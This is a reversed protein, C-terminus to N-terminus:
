FRWASHSFRPSSWCGATPRFSCGPLAPGWRARLAGDVGAPLPATLAAHSSSLDAVVSRGQGLYMVSGCYLYSYIAMLLLPVAMACAFAVVQRRFAFAMYLAIPAVLLVNTPRNWIALGMLVGATPIGWRWRRLVIALAMALLLISPGHQWMGETLTGWVETGFAFVITFGIAVARRDCIADLALFMFGASLAGIVCASIHSLIYHYRFLDYGLWDAVHFAPLNMLGPVIPYFSVVRGYREVFWYPLNRPNAVSPHQEILQNFDLSHYQLIAIPLLEAPATDGSAGGNWWGRPLLFILLCAATLIVATLYPSEWCVGVVLRWVAAWAGRERERRGPAGRVRGAVHEDVTQM